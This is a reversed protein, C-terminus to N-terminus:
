EQSPRGEAQGDTRGGKRTRGNSRGGTRGHTRQTQPGPPDARLVIKTRRHTLHLLGPFQLSRGSVKIQPRQAMREHAAQLDSQTIKRNWRTTNDPWKPTSIKSVAMIIAPTNPDAALSGVRLWASPHSQDAFQPEFFLPRPSLFCCGCGQRWRFVWRVRYSKVDLCSCVM